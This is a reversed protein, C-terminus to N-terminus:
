GSHWRMPLIKHWHFNRHCWRSDFWRGESKYCLVKVVTSGYRFSKIDIFIGIVGDPISGAVKRNTACRCSARLWIQEPCCYSIHQLNFCPLSVRSNHAIAVTFPQVQNTALPLETIVFCAIFSTFPQVLNTALPLDILVFCAIFSYVYFQPAKAYGNKGQLLIIIVHELHTDTARCIWCATHM